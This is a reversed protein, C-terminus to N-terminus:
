AGRARDPIWTLGLSLDATPASHTIAGVSIWSVGTESVSRVRDLSMNGSAELEPRPEPWDSIRASAERM